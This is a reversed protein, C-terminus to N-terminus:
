ILPVSQIKFIPHKKAQKTVRSNGTQEESDETYMSAGVM